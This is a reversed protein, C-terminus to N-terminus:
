LKGIEAGPYYYELIEEFDHGQKAMFYGGWQCLGVGHGWGFGDFVANGGEIKLSFNTSRIEEAGVFLRFNGATLRFEKFKDRLVVTKNRGGATTGSIFIEKIERAPIGNDNLAERIEDLPISKSWKFHPSLKCYPCAVGNLPKIDIKWLESADETRGGCTAHFFAPFINGKFKLVLSETLEVARNTRGRESTAGGYVQSYVDATLDFDSSSRTEATYAAYTRVAIAQAKLIEIPWFHSAEHYLVGRTYDELGIYNVLRLDNKRNLAIIDGRYDRGDVRLMGTDSSIRVAATNFFEGAISIGGEKPRIYGILGRDKYLLGGSNHDRVSFRGEIALEAGAAKCKVEVRIYREACLAPLSASFIFFVAATIIKKVM